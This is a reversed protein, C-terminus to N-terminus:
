SAPPWRTLAKTNKWWSIGTFYQLSTGCDLVIAAIKHGSMLQQAKAVRAQREELTIPSVGALMPQLHDLPSPERHAPNLQHPTANPLHSAAAPLGYLLAANGASLRLFNRRNLSMCSQKVVFYPMQGSWKFYQFLRTNKLANDKDLIL